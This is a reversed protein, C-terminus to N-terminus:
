KADCKTVRAIFESLPIAGNNKLFEEPNDMPTIEPTDAKGYLEYMKQLNEEIIDEKMSNFQAITLYVTKECLQCPSM